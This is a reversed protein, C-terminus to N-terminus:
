NLVLGDDVLVVSGHKPPIQQVSLNINLFSSVIRQQTVSSCSYDAYYITPM